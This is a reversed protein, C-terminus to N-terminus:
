FIKPFFASSNAPDVLEFCHTFRAKKKKARNYEVTEYVPTLILWYLLFVFSISARVQQPTAQTGVGNSFVKQYDSSGSLDHEDGAVTNYVCDITSSVWSQHMNERHM